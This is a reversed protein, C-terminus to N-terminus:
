PSGPGEPQTRGFIGFMWKMQHFPFGITQPYVTGVDNLFFVNAIQLLNPRFIGNMYGFWELDENMNCTVLWHIPIDTKSGSSAGPTELSPAFHHSRISSLSASPQLCWRNFQNSVNGFISYLYGLTGLFEAFQPTVVSFFPKLSASITGFRANEVPKFVSRVQEQPIM